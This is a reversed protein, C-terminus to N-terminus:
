RDQADRASTAWAPYGRDAPRDKERALSAQHPRRARVSKRRLRRWGAGRRGNEAIVSARNGHIAASGADSRRKSSASFTAIAGAVRKIVPSLPVPLSWM